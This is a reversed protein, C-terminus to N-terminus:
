SYIVGKKVTYRIGNRPRVFGEKTAANYGTEIHKWVAQSGNKHQAVKVMAGGDTRGKERSVGTLGFV